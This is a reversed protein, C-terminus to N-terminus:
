IARYDECIPFKDYGSCCIENSLNIFDMIYNLCQNIEKLQSNFPKHFSVAESSLLNKRLSLSKGTKELIYGKIDLKKIINRIISKRAETEAMNSFELDIYNMNTKWRIVLGKVNTKIAPWAANSGRSGSVKPLKIDRYYNDIHKYLCEWFDTVNDDRIPNYGQKKEETSFTFVAKDFSNDDLLSAIDEHSVKYDYGEAKETKLYANPACLFVFYKEYNEKSGLTKARDKYRESQSPQPDAAIKDEIFIAFREKRNECIIVIDSEGYLGDSEKDMLSHYIKIISGRIGIQRFFLERVSENEIFSKIISFDTDREEINYFNIEM